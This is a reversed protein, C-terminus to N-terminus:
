QGSQFCHGPRFHLRASARGSLVRNGAQQNQAGLIFRASTGSRNLFAGNWTSKFPYEDCDCGGQRQNPCSSSAQPRQKIVSDAYICSYNNNAGSTAGLGTVRTRQLANSPAALYQGADITLAGPSGAAQADRIHEAAEKVDGGPTLVLVAPAQAYVCGSGGNVAMGKDCRLTPPQSLFVSREV